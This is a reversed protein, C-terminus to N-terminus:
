LYVQVPAEMLVERNASCQTARRRGMGSKWSFLVRRKLACDADTALIRKQATLLHHGFTHQSLMGVALKLHPKFCNRSSSVRQLWADRTAVKCSQECWWVLQALVIHLTTFLCSMTICSIHYLGPQGGGWCSNIEKM